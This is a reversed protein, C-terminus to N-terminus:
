FISIDSHHTMGTRHIHRVTSHCGHLRRQSTGWFHHLFSCHLLEFYRQYGPGTRHDCKVYGRYIIINYIINYKYLISQHSSIPLVHM